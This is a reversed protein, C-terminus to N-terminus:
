SKITKLQAIGRGNYWNDQLLLCVALRPPLFVTVPALLPDLHGAGALLVVIVSTAVDLLLFQNLNRVRVALIYRLLLALLNGLLLALLLGVSGGLLNTLVHV